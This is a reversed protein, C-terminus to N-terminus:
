RFRVAETNLNQPMREQWKSTNQLSCRQALFEHLERLFDGRFLCLKFPQPLQLYTHWLISSQRKNIALVITERNRTIESMCAAQRKCTVIALKWVRDILYFNQDYSRNWRM